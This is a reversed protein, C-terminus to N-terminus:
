PLVGKIVIGSELRDECHSWDDSNDSISSLDSHNNGKAGKTSQSRSLSDIRKLIGCRITPRLSLQIDLFVKAVKVASILFATM